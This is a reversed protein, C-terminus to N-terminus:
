SGGRSVGEGPVYRVSARARLDSVWEEIREDIARRELRARVAAAAEELDAEESLAQEELARRIEEPSVRVQPRFRFEVYKLITAQRRLLLRLEADHARAAVEPRTGALLARAEEVEEESVGAQPLRAAESYMLRQDIAAELAADVDLGRVAALVRVESLFLPRDDVVALIREVLEVRPAPEQAAVTAALTSALVLSARRWICRARAGPTGRLVRSRM